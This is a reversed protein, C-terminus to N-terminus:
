LAGPKRNFGPAKAYLFVGTASISGSLVGGATEGVTRRLVAAAINKRPLEPRAPGFATPLDEPCRSINASREMYAPLM